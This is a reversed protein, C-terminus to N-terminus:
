LLHPLPSLSKLPALPALPKPPQKVKPLAGSTRTVACAPKRWRLGRQEILAQSVRNPKQNFTPLNLIQRRAKIHEDSGDAKQNAV